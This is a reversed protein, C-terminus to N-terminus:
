VKILGVELIVRFSCKPVKLVGNKESGAQSNEDSLTIAM